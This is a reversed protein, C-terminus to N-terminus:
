PRWERGTNPTAARPASRAEGLRQIRRVMTRVIMCRQDGFGTKGSRRLVLM